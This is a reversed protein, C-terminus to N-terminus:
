YMLIFMNDGYSRDIRIRDIRIKFAKSSTPPSRKDFGKYAWVPIGSQWNKKWWSNFEAMIQSCAEEFEKESTGKSSGCLNSSSNSSGRRKKSRESSTEERSSAESASSRGTSSASPQGKKKRHLLKEM